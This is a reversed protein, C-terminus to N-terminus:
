GVAGLWSRIHERRSGIWDRVRGAFTAQIEARLSRVETALQNREATTAELHSVMRNYRAIATGADVSMTANQKHQVAVQDRLERLETSQAVVTQELERIKKLHAALERGANQRFLLHSREAETLQVRLTKRPM